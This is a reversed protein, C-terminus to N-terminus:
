GEDKINEIESVKALEEVCKDPVDTFAINIDIKHDGDKPALDGGYIQPNINPDKHSYLGYVHKMMDKSGAKALSFQQSRLSRIGSTRKIEFLASFTMDYKERIKNELTTPDIEFELCIDVKTCQEACMKDFNKWNIPKPKRGMNKNNSWPSDFARPKKRGDM